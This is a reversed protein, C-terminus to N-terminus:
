KSERWQRIIENQEDLSKDGLASMLHKFLRTSEAQKAGYEYQAWVEMGYITESIECGRKMHQDMIDILGHYKENQTTKDMACSSLLTYYISERIVNIEQMEKYDMSKNDNM